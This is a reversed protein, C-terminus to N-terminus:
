ISSVLLYLNFALIITGFALAVATTTRRNVFEGMYSRKATFYILPIMPLPILLSLIVQSYVLLDLINLGLLLALMTPFVNIGRLVIRRLWPHVNSGLFGEMLAQGALVGTTSSSLGSCLLTVAFVIGSLAGFLPTLTLYADQMTVVPTQTAYFAAAAMVLIAVNVLAAGTLNTITDWRHYRLLKRKEERDGKELKNKTLWSHVVLAHPMVTAGIIGVSIAVTGVTSYPILSHYAMARFDPKTVLVEYVYGLSVISVLSAVLFEIRRFKKGALAFILLVDFSSIAAAWITPIGFLLALAVTVGLFEALDTAVAFAECALWYAIVRRRSGLKERILEALSRGTAIGLKGSLYQLLMAMFSSLWVVWLLDYNFSAGAAIDTGFNGPDFYAVSVILAPGFYRLFGSGKLWGKKESALDDVV